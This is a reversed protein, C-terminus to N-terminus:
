AVNIVVHGKKHGTEVYTHAEVIEELVFSVQVQRNACRFDTKSMQGDEAPGREVSSLFRKAQDQSLSLEQFASKADAVTLKSSVDEAVLSGHCDM